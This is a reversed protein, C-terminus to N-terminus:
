RGVRGAKCPVPIKNTASSRRIILTQTLMSELFWGTQFLHVYHDRVAPDAPATKVWCGFVYIMVWFTIYDFISSRRASILLIFRSINSMAWPLPKAVIEPDVDDTPIPVQSFDYLLNNTLLQIPAMPLYPLFISAGLVSFMNGFSSSAGMRIYKLINAFVNRGELIGEELVLLSKELLIVDASEKAIDVASDVSIGVDAARLAPADNIGDGMFGVVHGKSQLAKIIRQKHAPSLRAFLTTQDAAEALEADSMPEVQNGVLTTGETPIGVQSCIKRSVLDNDGTLVKVSVGHKRLAEIAPLATEKPPDLFAIYGRLVMACEDEKSYVMKDAPTDKFAIALVRFGDSSLREYEERLDEILLQEIPYAQGELEFTTCRKFIEEPAGKCVLRHKGDPTHVVVSMVRRSFDFPIEDVKQYDRVAATGQTKEHALVARDLVNKLGTQFHSNLYALLLVGDDDQSVVDCHRELIVRDMTLTGTKDTCLVDMAGFNQISNLRKVIVKKKSMAIAGKSLCVTVIMPLMEPTLGVAVSVAFLFANWWDQKLFGNIFFVLPTMVAMFGIMLWTFQSIGKDFSTRVQQGVIATAMGGLYTDRGTAAVLGLASGSEVSTGLFCINKRDLPARDDAPEPADFKETPFSEGTLSAQTLFLDKCTLLRLDAPIMDGAALKVVDGPVLQTLPVERAVGDRVVTATVSIMAKLKAAATEAKSEQWFRLSVGLLVMAMMVIASRLDNTAYSVTALVTLLIVLPNVVARLLLRLRSHHEPPAVVNFGYHELREEAESEKLGDASSNMKGPVAANDTSALEVLLPSVRFSQQPRKWAQMLGRPLVSTPRTPM